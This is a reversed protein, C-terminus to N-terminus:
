RVVSHSGLRVARRCRSRHCRIAQRRALWSQYLLSTFSRADIREVTGAFATDSVLGWVGIPNNRPPETPSASSGAVNCHALSRRPM